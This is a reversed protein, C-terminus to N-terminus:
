RWVAFIIGSVVFAVLYAGANIAVLKWPKKEWVVGSVEVAAVFGLWVVVSVVLGRAWTSADAYYIARALIFNTILTLIFQGIYMKVMARTSPQTTFLNGMYVRWQKGLVYDSYWLTSVILSAVVTVLLAWINVNCLSLM